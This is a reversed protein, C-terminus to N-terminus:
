ALHYLRATMCHSLSTCVSGVYKEYLKGTCMLKDQMGIFSFSMFFGCVCVRVRVDVVFCGRKFGKRLTLAYSHSLLILQACGAVLVFLNGGVPLM